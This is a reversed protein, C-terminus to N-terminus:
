ITHVTALAWDVDNDDAMMTTMQTTTMTMRTNDVNSTGRRGALLQSSGGAMWVTMEVFDAALEVRTPRSDLSQEFVTGLRAVKECETKNGTKVETHFQNFQRQIQPFKSGFEYRCITVLVLHSQM